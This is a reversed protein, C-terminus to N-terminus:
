DDKVAPVDKLATGTFLFYHGVEIQADAPLNADYTPYLVSIAVWCGRYLGRDDVDWETVFGTAQPLPVDDSPGLDLLDRVADPDVSSGYTPWPQHIYTLGFDVREEFEVAGQGQSVYDAFVHALRGRNERHRALDDERRKLEMM